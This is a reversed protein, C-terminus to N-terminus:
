HDRDVEGLRSPNGGADACTQHAWQDAHLTGAVDARVQELRQISRLRNLLPM